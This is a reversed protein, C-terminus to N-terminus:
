KSLPSLAGEVQACPVVVASNAYLVAFCLGTRSDRIYRIDSGQTRADESSLFMLLPVFLCLIAVVVLAVGVRAWGHQNTM